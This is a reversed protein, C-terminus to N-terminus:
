KWLIKNRISQNEKIKQLVFENAENLENLNYKTKKSLKKLSINKIYYQELVYNVIDSNDQFLKKLEALVMIRWYYKRDPSLKYYEETLLDNLLLEYQLPALVAVIKEKPVRNYYIVEKDSISYNFGSYYVSTPTKDSNIMFEKNENIKERSSLDFAILINDNIQDFIKNIKSEVVVVNNKEQEKYYHKTKELDTSFSIWSYDKGSGNTIHANKTSLIDNFQRLAKIDNTSILKKLINDIQEQNINAKDIIEPIHLNIVFNNRIERYISNLEQNTMQSLPNNKKHFNSYLLLEYDSYIIEDIISKAILGNKTPDIKEDLENIARYIYM